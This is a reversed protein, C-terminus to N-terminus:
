ININNEILYNNFFKFEDDWKLISDIQKKKIKNNLLITSKPRKIKTPFEHTKVPKIRNLEYQPFINKIAEKAFDFWSCAGDPTLHYIGYEYFDHKSLILNINSGIFYASTPVGYQDDVIKLDKNEKVIRLITSLFNKGVESYVWSTRFIFYKSCNKQIFEEGALKSKGYINLPNPKDDEQYYEKKGDFIYDTSFHFLPIDLEKAKRSIVDVATANIKYALDEESDALEVNTYAAPNIILDPQHFDIYKKISEANILDCSKRDSLILEHEILHRSLYTGVQGTIGTILIKM